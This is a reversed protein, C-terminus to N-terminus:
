GFVTLRTTASVAVVGRGEALGALMWANHEDPHSVPAGGNGSWQWDGSAVDFRHVGGMNDGIFVSDNVVIPASTMGSNGHRWLLAGTAENRAELRGDVVFFGRGDKFAPATSSSFTGLLGGTAANFVLGSTDRVYLRGNSLVTTKGGGGSCGPAYHWQEAGTAPALRYVHPCAYSVYVGDDSVTPASHDGNAVSATWLVSGNQQSVAYVTGGSGAGGTYVVGNRATPPSTFAYQGPLDVTWRRAGTQANFAQLIGDYNIAFVAGADYALGAIFYTGGLEIPGWVDEGTTRDVAYLASGYTQTHAVAAYVIDGVILPYSVNGGMDRSWLTGLSSPLAADDHGGTHTANLQYAVADVPPHPGSGGPRRTTTTTSSGGPKTGGNGNGNGSGNGTGNDGGTGNGGGSGTGSGGSRRDARRSPGAPGGGAELDGFDGEDLFTGDEDVSGGARHGAGAQSRLATERAGDGPLAVLALGLMLVVLGALVVQLRSSRSARTLGAVRVGGDEM